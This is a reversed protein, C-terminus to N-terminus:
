GAGPLHLEPQRNGGAAHLGPARRCYRGGPHLDGATVPTGNNALTGSGPLTTITVALLANADTDTFGFDAATFTYPTGETINVTNDTGAPADNVPTVTIDKTVVASDTDGDNVTISVTRSAGPSQSTTSFTISQLVTQWEALTAM